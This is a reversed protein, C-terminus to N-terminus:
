FINEFNFTYSKSKLRGSSSVSSAMPAEVLVGNIAMIKSGDPFILSAQIEDRVPVKGAGVRNVAALMQLAKDDDSGPILNLTVPIPTAKGWFLLDGNLGMATEKVKIAPSDFPDADDAFQTLTIGVPFTISGVLIAKFGFGGVNNM